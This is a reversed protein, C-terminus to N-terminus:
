PSYAAPRSPIQRLTLRTDDLAYAMAGLSVGAIVFPLSVQAGVWFQDFQGQVIRALVVTVALNGYIPDIRWLVVLTSLVMLIFAALGVVGASALVELEANPPQYGLASSEEYWFRLGHGFWPSERWYATTEEFWQLRQFVPSFRNGEVVEDRVLSGVLVFLPVAVIVILKSRRRQAEGRLALVFVAVALSIIAQRSQTFLMAVVLLWFVALANRRSWAVWVPRAYATIAGFALVTGVLNKHMTYPWSLYVPSIDGRAFQLLGQVITAVALACMVLLLLSLGLRARGSRGITWGVILAGSIIMWAHFWEVANESFPNAVVAFLTAFQYLASLWLLIRLERNFPRVTFLLAIATAGFLVADSVSLDFGAGSIRYVVPLFPMSLLPIAAPEFASLGIGLILIAAAVGYGPQTPMMRGIALALLVLLATGVMWQLVRGARSDLFTIM